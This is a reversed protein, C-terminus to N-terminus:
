MWKWRPDRRKSFKWLLCLTQKNDQLRLFTILSKNHRTRARLNARWWLPRLMNCAYMCTQNFLRQSGKRQLVRDPCASVSSDQSTNTTFQNYKPTHVGTCLATHASPWCGSPTLAWGGPPHPCLCHPGPIPCRTWLPGSIFLSAPLPCLCCHHPRTESALVPFSPRERFSTNPTKGTEESTIPSKM